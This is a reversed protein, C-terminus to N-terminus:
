AVRKRGKKPAELMSRLSDPCLELGNPWALAGADVFCSEFLNRKLVSAALGKPKAFISTLSVWGQAGDSFHLRVAHAEADIKIIKSIKKGLNRM